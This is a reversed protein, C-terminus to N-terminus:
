NLIGRFIAIMDNDTLHLHYETINKKLKEFKNDALGIIYDEINGKDWDNWYFVLGLHELHRLNIEEQGPLTHYVVIPIGKCLCESITVGGPKTLIVDVQNYLNNMEEKSEIYPLPTIHTHNLRLLEEYLCINKGCLVKYHVNGNPMTKDILYKILGAGLSGGTILVTILSDPKIKVKNSKTIIPHVPIGTIFIQEERVGRSLLTQKTHRDPVFHFDIEQIGWIDNIFFDTYANIVPVHLLGLKKLRSAIYSPLCHTCIVFDPQKELILKHMYKQFLIEYLHFQKENHVNRYALKKYTWSYLDPFLHIWKVYLGSVLSELNGFSYSLIDIKECVISSDTYQICETITDAVQHHGSPMTLIPMILVKKM